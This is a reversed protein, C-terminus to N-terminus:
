HLYSPFISSFRVCYEAGYNVTALGGRSGARAQSHASVRIESERPDYALQQERLRRNNARDECLLPLAGRLDTGLLGREKRKGSTMIFYIHM